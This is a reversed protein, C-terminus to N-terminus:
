SMLPKKATMYFVSKKFHHVFEHKIRTNCKDNQCMYIAYDSDDDDPYEALDTQCNPCKQIMRNSSGGGNQDQNCTHTIGDNNLVTHYRM